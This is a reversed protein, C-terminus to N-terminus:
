PASILAVAILPLSPVDMMSHSVVNWAFQDVCFVKMEAWWKPPSCCFLCLWMDAIRFLGQELYLQITGRVTM